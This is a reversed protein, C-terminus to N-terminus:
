FRYPLERLIAANSWSSAVDAAAAASLWQFAVHERPALQPTLKEPVCIAFCRERNHTVDAPYRHRWRPYICYVNEYRLDRVGGYRAADIGTEELAERAATQAFSEGAEQSGTVSQWFGAFDAREILLVDLAPTHIVVLVSRPIKLPRQATEPTKASMMMAVMAM